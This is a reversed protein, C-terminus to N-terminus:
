GVARDANDAANRLLHFGGGSRAFFPHEDRRQAPGHDAIGVTARDIDERKGLSEVEFEVPHAIHLLRIGYDVPQADLAFM